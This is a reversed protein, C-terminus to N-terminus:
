SDKEKVATTDNLVGPEPIRRLDEFWKVLEHFTENEAGQKRNNGQSSRGLNGSIDFGISNGYGTVTTHAFLADFIGSIGFAHFAGVPIVFGFLQNHHVTRGFGIKLGDLLMDGIGTVIGPQDSSFFGLIFFQRIAALVLGIAAVV